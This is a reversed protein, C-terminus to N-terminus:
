SLCLDVPNGHLDDDGHDDVDDPVPSSWLQEFNCPKDLSNDLYLDWYTLFKIPPHLKLM